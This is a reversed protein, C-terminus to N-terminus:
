AARRRQAQSAAAKPALSRWVSARAAMGIATGRATNSTHTTPISNPALASTNRTFDWPAVVKSSGSLDPHSLDFGDDIVAVITEPSGLTQGLMWADLVRADAGEKLGIPSGKVTGTNRLHWQLTLLPEAVPLVFGSLSGPTALNPEAVRVQAAGQLESAVRM